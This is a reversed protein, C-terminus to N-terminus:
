VLYRAKLQEFMSGAPFTGNKDFDPDRRAMENWLHLAFSSRTQAICDGADPQYASRWASCAVPYFASALQGKHLLGHRRLAATLGMPGGAEGWKAYERGKRLLRRKIKRFVTRPNDDPLLRNPNRCLSEMETCIPHNPPFGLVANCVDGDPQLGFVVDSSFTFPRLCVVDM